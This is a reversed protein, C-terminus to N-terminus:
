RIVKLSFERGWPSPKRGDDAPDNYWVGDAYFLYAYSGPCLTIDATWQGDPQLRMEHLHADPGDVPLALFVRKAGCAFGQGLRFTVNWATQARAPSIVRIM